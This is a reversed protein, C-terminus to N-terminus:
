CVMSFSVQQDVIAKHSKTLTITITLSNDISDTISINYALKFPQRIKLELYCGSHRLNLSSQLNAPTEAPTPLYLLTSCPTWSVSAPAPPPALTAPDASSRTPNAKSSAKLAKSLAKVVTLEGEGSTERHKHTQSHTLTNTHTHIVTCM